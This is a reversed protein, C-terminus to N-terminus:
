EPWSDAESWESGSRQWSVQGKRVMFRAVAVIVRYGSVIEEALGTTQWTGWAVPYTLWTFRSMADNYSRKM